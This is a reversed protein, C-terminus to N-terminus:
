SMKEKAAKKKKNTEAQLLMVHGSTESLGQYKYVEIADYVFSPTSEVM